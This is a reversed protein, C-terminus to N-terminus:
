GVNSIANIIEGGSGAPIIEKPTDGLIDCSFWLKSNSYQLLLLHNVNGLAVYFEM